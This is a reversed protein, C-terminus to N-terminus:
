RRRVINGEKDECYQSHRKLWLARKVKRAKTTAEYVDLLIMAIGLVLFTVSWFVVIIM